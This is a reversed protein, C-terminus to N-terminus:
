KVMMKESALRKDKNVVEVFYMGPSFLSHDLMIISRQLETETYILKGNTDYINVSLNKLGASAFHDLRIVAEDTVPNPYVNLAITEADF